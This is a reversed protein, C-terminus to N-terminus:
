RLLLIHDILFVTKGDKSYLTLLHMKEGQSLTGIAILRILNELM